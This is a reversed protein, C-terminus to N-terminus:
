LRKREMYLAGGAIIGGIAMLGLGSAASSSGLGGPAPGPASCQGNPPAPTATATLVPLQHGPGPPMTATYSLSPSVYQGDFYWGDWCYGSSVTATVQVTSGYNEPYTGPAPSTTVGPSAGIYFAAQETCSSGGSPNVQPTPVAAAGIIYDKGSAITLSLTSGNGETAGNVSWGVFCYGTQTTETVKYSTGVPVYYAGPSPTLTLGQSPSSITVNNYCSGLIPQVVTLSTPSVQVTISYNQDPLIQSGVLWGDVCYGSQLGSITVTQSSASTVVVTGPAPTLTATGVSPPLITFIGVSSSFQAYLQIPIEPDGSPEGSQIQAYSLTVTGVAGAVQTKGGNSNQLYWDQVAAGPQANLTISSPQGGPPYIEMQGKPLVSYTGQPAQSFGGTVGVTLQIGNQSPSSTVEPTITCGSPCEQVTISLTETSNGQGLACTEGPYSALSSSCQFVSQTGSNTYAFTAQTGLNFVDEEGIQTGSPSTFQATTALPSPNITPRGIGAQTNWYVSVSSTGTSFAFNATESVPINQGTLVWWYATYSGSPVSFAFHLVQSSGAPATVSQELAVSGSSTLPMEQGQANRVTMVATLTQGSALTYNNNTFSASLVCSGSSSCSGSPSSVLVTNVASLGLGPAALAAGGAAILFGVFVAALVTTRM